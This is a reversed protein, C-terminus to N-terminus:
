VDAAETNEAQVDDDADDALNFTDPDIGVSMLLQKESDFIYSSGYRCRGHEKRVYEEIAEVAKQFAKKYVEIDAKLHENEFYMKRYEDTTILVTGIEREM